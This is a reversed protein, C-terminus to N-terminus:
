PLTLGAVPATHLPANRRPALERGTTIDRPSVGPCTWSGCLRPQAPSFGAGVTFDPHFFTALTQKCV